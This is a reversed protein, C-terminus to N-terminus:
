KCLKKKSNCTRQEFYISFSQFRLSLFKGFNKFTADSWFIIKSKKNQLGPILFSQFTIILDFGANKVAECAKINNKLVDEDAWSL